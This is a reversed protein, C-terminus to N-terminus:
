ILAVVTAQLAIAADVNQRRPKRSATHIGKASNKGPAVLQSATRATQRARCIHRHAAPRSPSGTRDPYQTKGLGLDPQDGFAKAQGHRQETADDTARHHSRSPVSGPVQQDAADQLRGGVPDKRQLGPNPGSMASAQKTVMPISFRVPTTDTGDREHGIMDPDTWRRRCPSGTRAATTVQRREGAGHQRRAAAPKASWTPQTVNNEQEGPQRRNGPMTSSSQSICVPAREPPWCPRCRRVSRRGAPIATM